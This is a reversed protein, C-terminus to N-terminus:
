RGATTSRREMLVVDRWTGALPGFTMKGVRERTGVTRFGARAHLALSAANEPFIGSQLTWIGAAESSAVLRGLLALGVGRGRAAAAVYVSHEAVGAYACRDSTATAAAWGLVEGASDLAVWRQGPLKAADFEAWSPPAAEFTANGTAIGEAYVAAVRPWHVAELPAIAVGTTPLVETM